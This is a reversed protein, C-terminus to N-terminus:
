SPKRQELLAIHDPTTALKVFPMHHSRWFGEAKLRDAEKLGTRGKPLAFYDHAMASSDARGKTRDCIANKFTNFPKIEM